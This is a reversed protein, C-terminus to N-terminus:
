KIKKNNEDERAGLYVAAIALIIFIIILTIFMTKIQLAQIGIM